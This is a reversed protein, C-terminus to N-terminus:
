EHFKPAARAVGAQGSISSSLRAAIATAFQQLSETAAPDIRSLAALASFKEQIARLEDSEEPSAALVRDAAEIVAAAQEKLLAYVAERTRTEPRARKVEDMFEFLEKASGDPVTFRKESDAAPTDPKESEAGPADAEQAPLRTANLALLLLFLSLRFIVPNRSM